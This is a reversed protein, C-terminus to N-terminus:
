SAPSDVKDALGNRKMWAMVSEVIPSTEEQTLEYQAHLRNMYRRLRTMQDSWAEVNFALPAKGDTVAEVNRPPVLCSMLVHLTDDEKDAFHLWYPFLDTLERVFHQVGPDLFVDGGGEYGDFAIRVRSAFERVLSANMIMQELSFLSEHVRLADVKKRDFRLTVFDAM